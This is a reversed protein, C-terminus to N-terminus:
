RITGGRGTFIARLTALNETRQGYPSGPLSAWIGNAAKCASDFRGAALFKTAGCERLLENCARDQSEPGFDPLQLKKRLSDWTARLFQYRGAASSKIKYRPLYVLIRPHKSFDTFLGGGVLVDYGSCRTPQFNPKDTGESYAIVDRFAKLQHDVNIQM